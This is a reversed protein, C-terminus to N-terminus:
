VDGRGVRWAYVSFLLGAIFGFVGASAIIRLPIELVPWADKIAPSAAALAVVGFMMTLAGVFGRLGRADHYVRYELGALVLNYVGATVLVVRITLAFILVDNM